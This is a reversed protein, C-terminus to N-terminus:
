KRGRELMLKAKELVRLRSEAAAAIDDWFILQLSEPLADVRELFRSLVSEARAM